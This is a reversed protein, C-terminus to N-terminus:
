LRTADTMSTALEGVAIPVPSAARVGPLQDWLEPALVDELFFLRYEELSRALAVAQKPSLRSHVDHLLEVEEGLRERAAAFLQPTRRLYESVRWGYPYPAAADTVDTLGPAGYSGRGLQSVQLRVHRWGAEIFSEAQELTEEITTGAAHTYTDAAAR